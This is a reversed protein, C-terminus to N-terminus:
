LLPALVVLWRWKMELPCTCVSNRSMNYRQHHDLFAGVVINLISSSVSLPLCARLAAHADSLCVYQCLSDHVMQHVREDVAASTFVSLM